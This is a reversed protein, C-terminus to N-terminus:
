LRFIKSDEVEAMVEPSHTALVLQAENNLLRFDAILQRQWDVHLSPEPEDVLISSAGVLLTEVFLRLLHKEGSSLAELGINQNDSTAVAIAQDTFIIQKNGSFMRQILAQLKLRPAMVIEIGQEVADIEAVISRLRPDRKYRKQFDELTTLARHSGQRTLFSEVRQYAVDSNLEKLLTPREGPKETTLINRLIRGLGSEQATRVGSLIEAAYRLWLGQIARGFYRDLQEESISAAGAAPNTVVRIDEDMLYLRSTPLYAHQYGPLRQSKEEDHGTWSTWPAFAAWTHLNKLRVAPKTQDTEFPFIHSSIVTNEGGDGFDLTLPNPANKVDTKDFTRRLNRKESLSYFVVEARDFSVTKLMAADGSMASHLIKLLSTKGSGNLGFFINVDRNLTQQYPDKRGVLGDVRFSVIHSM